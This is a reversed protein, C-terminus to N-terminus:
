YSGTAKSTTAASMSPSDTVNTTLTFSKAGTKILTGNISASLAGAEKVALVYIDGCSTSTSWGNTITFSGSSSTPMNYVIFNNVKNTSVIMVDTSGSCFSSANAYCGGSYKTSGFSFEGSAPTADEKKCGGVILCVIAIVILSKLLSTKM